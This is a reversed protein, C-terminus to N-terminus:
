QWISATLRTTATQCWAIDRPAFSRAQNSGLVLVRVFDKTTTTETTAVVPLLLVAQTNVPLYPLFETKGPLAQLTPLYTEDKSKNSQLFRNLIPTTSGDLSLNNNSETITTFDTPVIGAAAQVEWVNGEPVHRLLVASQAPTATVLSELVWRLTKRTNSDDDDDDDQKKWQQQFSADDDDHEKAGVLIVPESLSRGVLVVKEALASEVDLKNLGNLLVAGASFVALLNSRTTVVTLDQAAAAAAAGESSSSSSDLLFRGVVLIVLGVTGLVISGIDSIIWQLIPDIPNTYTTTTTSTVVSSRSDSSQTNKSFRIRPGTKKKKEYSNNNNKSFFLRTPQQQQRRQRAAATASTRTTTTMTRKTPLLLALRLSPRHQIPPHRITKNGSGGGIVILSLVGWPLTLQLLCLVIFIFTRMGQRNRQLLLLSM